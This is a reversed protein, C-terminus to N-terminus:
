LTSMLLGLAVPWLWQAWPPPVPRDIVLTQLRETEATYLAHRFLDVAVERAQGIAGTRTSLRERRQRVSQQMAAVKDLVLTARVALRESATGGQGFPSALWYIAGLLQERSTSQLLLNVACVILVLVAIRLTGDRMGAVTPVWPDLFQLWAPSEGPTFWLFVFLISLLFWRLRRLMFLAPRLPTGSMWYAVTLTAVAAILAHFAATAVCTVFVCLLVIRVVPHIMPTNHPETGFFAAALISAAAPYM